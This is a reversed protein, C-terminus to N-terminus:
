FKLRAIFSRAKHKLRKRFNKFKKKNSLKEKYRKGTEIYFCPIHYYDFFKNGAVSDYYEKFIDVIDPRSQFSYRTQHKSLIDPQDLQFGSFHFFVLRDTGDISNVKYESDHVALQREHLNWYAMNHGKHTLILVNRFYLPVFNIPLQDTFMGHQPDDFCHDKLKIMWWNIFKFSEDSKRVGIFGLNYLGTNLVDSENTRFNDFIPTTFHPTIIIDFQKFHNELMTLPQYIMIDPDFYIITTVETKTRFIFDFLYPKVATNLEIINYKDLMEKLPLNDLNGIPIIEFDSFLQYDIQPSYTDVLGIIFKYEKNYKLLSDGLTKAQALYNNSCITFAIKM